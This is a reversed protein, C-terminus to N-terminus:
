HGALGIIIRTLSIFPAEPCTGAGSPFSPDGLFSGDEFLRCRVASHVTGHCCIGFDRAASGFGRPRPASKLVLVLVLMVIFVSLVASAAVLSCGFHVLWCSSWLVGRWLLFVCVGFRFLVLPGRQFRPVVWCVAWVLFAVVHIERYGWGLQSTLLCCLWRVASCRGRSLRLHHGQLSGSAAHRSCFALPNCSSCM